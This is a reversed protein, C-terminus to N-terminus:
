VMHIKIIIVHSFLALILQLIKQANRKEELLYLIEQIKCLTELLNRSFHNKMHSVFWNTLLLLSRHDASNKAEKGNFTSIIVANVMRKMDIGAHHPLEQQINKIHDSIDHLPENVLIEYKKLNSTQLSSFPNNFLVAPM